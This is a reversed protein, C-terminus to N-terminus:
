KRRVVSASAGSAGRTVYTLEGHVLCVSVDGQLDTRLVPVGAATLLSLAKPSPLGYDNGLGVGIVSVRPQVASILAPLVKASGHHPQKLVDARLDIRDDLLQQQAEIQIDGTMLIRLGGIRAMLVVSDNNEDSDTGRFAKHPGLAELSLEGSAWRAGKPLGVVPIARSAALGTVARWASPSDRDPGVAIAAVTRGRLTGVLGGVHDAHLHTLVLLAITAIRLRTLCADMREPDPGTDIVVATGAEGTSLVMGDGQGVECATLVWGTPPWGLQVVQAPVLVVGAGAVLAVVLARARRHRLVLSGSVLLGALTLVGPLSAPWPLTASQWSAFRHALLAVWNLLPEDAQALLQAGRSWWPGFLACAMGIVLAPAVVLGALLNAPISALSIAGSLAVIVPMTAVTAATPVALLDAWGAPWGKRQLAKSWLPALVVLGATAQVSLAFGVSRSLTPDYLLLGIVAAALAPLATRTRGVSLAFLAVSGMVAARLVSAGPGVLIVLGILVVAGGGAAIRPGLRRLLLVSLGCLLAFHSGSVALLHSLGAVKADADLAPSIGGTDGVVLGPLLGAADGKLELANRSLQKRITAAAQQWAPAPQTTVPGDRAKVLVGPLVAFDDPALLGALRVQQGPIVDGWTNGVALVTADLDPTWEQGALDATDAHVGILWRGSGPVGPDPMSGAASFGDPLRRIPGTVSATVTAWSGRSAAETLPNAAALHWQILSTALAAVFGAIAALTGAWRRVRRMSLMGIVGCLGAAWGAMIRTAPDAWALGILCGVWIALAMPVLRLDMPATIEDEVWKKSM